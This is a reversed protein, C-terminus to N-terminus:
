RLASELMLQNILDVAKQDSSELKLYNNLSQKKLKWKNYGDSEIQNKGLPGLTWSLSSEESSGDVAYVVTVQDWSPRDSIDNYLLYSLRVPNNAPLSRLVSGTLIKKGVEYGSYIKPTPWNDIVYKTSFSDQFFNWERGEPYKGGMCVLKEVKQRVLEMGNLSSIEDPPSKLLNKLNTLYGITVIVVSKDENESLVRRYLAVADPAQKMAKALPKFEDAIMATYKSEDRVHKGRVVGVPIDPRGFWTNLAELCPASWPDGSSVMMALIKAKGQDALAHLVAVAGVDDVDSSIDTDLIILTPSKQQLTGGRYLFFMGAVILTGFVVIKIFISKIMVDVIDLFYIRIVM